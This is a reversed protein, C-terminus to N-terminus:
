AINLEDLISEPYANITGHRIDSVKEPIINRQRCIASAQRGYQQAKPLSIEFGKLRSYALVTFWHGQGNKFRDLEASNGQIELQQTRQEFAMEAVKEELIENQETLLHNQNELLNVQAKLLETERELIPLRQQEIVDLRRRQDLLAQANALIIEEMLMPKQEQVEAQRTKVAFYKKALAVEQKRGDCALAVMYAGYRSFLYNVREQNTKGSPEKYDSAHINIDDGVLDMNEIAREISSLFADWKSYGMVEQLDRGTWFENGNEDVQRIADFPSENSEHSFQLLSM